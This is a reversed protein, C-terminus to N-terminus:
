GVGLVLLADEEPYGVHADREVKDEIREDVHEKAALADAATARTAEAAPGAPSGRRLLRGDCRLQGLVVGFQSTHENMKKM